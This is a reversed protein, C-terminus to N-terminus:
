IAYLYGSFLHELMKIQAVADIAFPVDSDEVKEMVIILHYEGDGEETLMVTESGLWNDAIYKALKEKGNKKIPWYKKAKIVADIRHEDLDIKFEKVKM